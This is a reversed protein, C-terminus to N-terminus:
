LFLSYIYLKNRYVVDFYIYIYIPLLSTQKLTVIYATSHPHCLGLEGVM